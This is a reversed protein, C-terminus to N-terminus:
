KSYDFKRNHLNNAKEIFIELTVRPAGMIITGKM